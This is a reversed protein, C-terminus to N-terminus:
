HHYLRRALWLSGNILLVLPLMVPSFVYCIVHLSRLGSPVPIQYNAWIYNITVWALHGAVLWKTIFWLIHM